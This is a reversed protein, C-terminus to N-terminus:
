DHDNGNTAITDALFGEEHESERIHLPQLAAEAAFLSRSIAQLRPIDDWTASRILM